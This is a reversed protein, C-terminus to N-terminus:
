TNQPKGVISNNWAEEAKKITDYGYSNRRGCNPCEFWYIYNSHGEVNKRYEKKIPIKGCCRRM